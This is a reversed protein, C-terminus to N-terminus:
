KIKGELFEISEPSILALYLKELESEKKRYFNAFRGLKIITGNVDISKSYDVEEAEDIDHIKKYVVDLLIITKIVTLLENGNQQQTSEKARLPTEEVHMLEHYAVIHPPLYKDYKENCSGHREEVLADVFWTNWENEVDSIMIKNSYCGPIGSRVWKVINQETCGHTSYKSIYNLFLGRAVEDAEDKKEKPILYIFTDKYIAEQLKALISQVRMAKKVALLEEARSGVVCSKITHRGPENQFNLSSCLPNEEKISIKKSLWLDNTSKPHSFNDVILKEFISSIQSVIPLFELVAIFAHVCRGGLNGERIKKCHGVFNGWFLANKWSCRLKDLFYNFDAM